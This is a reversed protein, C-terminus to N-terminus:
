LLAISASHAARIAVCGQFSAYTNKLCSSPMPEPGGATSANMLATLASTETVPAEAIARSWFAGAVIQDRDNEISPPPSAEGDYDAAM